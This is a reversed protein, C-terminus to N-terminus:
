SNSEEAPPQPVTAFLVRHARGVTWRHIHGKSEAIAILDNVRRWSLGAEDQTAERIEAKTTPRESIFQEVFRQVTWEPVKSM